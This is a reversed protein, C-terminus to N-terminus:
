PTEGLQDDAAHRRLMDCGHCEARPYMSERDVECKSGCTECTRSSMREVMHIMGTIMDIRQNIIKMAAADKILEHDYVYDIYFRLGGYKEKIQVAVVAFKLQPYCRNTTEVQHTISDCLLDILDYWGNGCEIGFAMCTQSPEGGVERFISPYKAFLQNQLECDM